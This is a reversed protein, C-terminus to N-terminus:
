CTSKFYRQVLIPNVYVSEFRAIPMLFIPMVGSDLNRSGGIIVCQDVLEELSDETRDGLRSPREGNRM